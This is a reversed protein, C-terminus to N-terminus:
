AKAENQNHLGESQSKEVRLSYGAQRVPIGIMMRMRQAQDATAWAESAMLEKGAVFIQAIPGTPDEIAAMYSELSCRFCRGDNVCHHVHVVVGAHPFSQRLSAILDATAASIIETTTM